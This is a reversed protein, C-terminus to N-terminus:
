LTRLKRRLHVIAAYAILYGLVVPFFLLRALTPIAAGGTLGMRFLAFHLMMRTHAWDASFYDCNENVIFIKSRLRAALSWKWKTMLPEGSCIIGAVDYRREALLAYLRKRAERGRYDTVRYVTGRFGDPVGAFCTVLDMEMTDGHVERLHPVLRNFIRRSGSEILLVRELPPM